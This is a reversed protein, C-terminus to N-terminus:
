EELWLEASEVFTFPKIKLKPFKSAAMSPFVIIEPKDSVVAIKFDPLNSVKSCLSGLLLDIEEISMLMKAESFITILGKYSSIEYTSIIEEWSEMNDKFSIEGRFIRYIFGKESNVSIEVRSQL